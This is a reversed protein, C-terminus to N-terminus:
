PASVSIISSEGSSGPNIVQISFNKPTTSYPHRQYVVRNCNIYILQERETINGSGSSIRKVDVAFQTPNEELSKQEMVVLSSDQQFNRGEIILNYYNVFEEGKTVSTIEPRADIILGVVGSLADNPNRVQVQHLGGAIHPASFGLSESSVFRGRIISGDFVVQSGKVFNDGLISVNRDAGTSCAFVTDPSLASVSPRVALINFNYIRSTAGDDRKVFLAYLGPDLKPIEFSLQQPGAVDASVERNALFVTTQPTFGTGYLTITTGPEGQAPIISLLSVPSQDTEAQPAPPPKKGSRHPAATDFAGFSPQAMLMMLVPFLILLRRVV